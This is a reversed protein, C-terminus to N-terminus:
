SDPGATRRAGHSHATRSARPSDARAGLTRESSPARATARQDLTSRSGHQSLQRARRRRRSRPWRRRSGGARPRGTRRRAAADGRRAVPSARTPRPWADPGRRRRAPARLRGAPLATPDTSTGRAGASRAPHAAPRPRPRPPRLSSGARHASLKTRTLGTLRTSDPRKRRSSSPSRGFATPRDGVRAHVGGGASAAAVRARRCRVHQRRGLAAHQERQARMDAGLREHGPSYRISARSARGTRACKAVASGAGRHLVRRGMRRVGADILDDVRRMGARTRRLQRGSGPACAAVAPRTYGAHAGREVRVAPRARLHDDDAAHDLAGQRARVALM